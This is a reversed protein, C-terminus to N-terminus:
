SLVALFHFWGYPEPDITPMGDTASTWFRSLTLALGGSDQPHKSHKAGTCSRRSRSMVLGDM